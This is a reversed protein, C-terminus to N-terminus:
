PAPTSPSATPTAMTSHVQLDYPQNSPTSGATRGLYPNSPNLGSNAPVTVAVYYTQGGIVPVILPNDGTFLNTNAASGVVKMTSDLVEVFTQDGANSFTDLQLKGSDPATVVFMDVDDAVTIRTSSGTPPPDSGLEGQEDTYTYTLGTNPDQASFDPNTLDVAVAGQITGNPDPNILQIQVSYDGQTAGGAAGTGNITYSENGVSSVGLYYTGVALPNAATNLMPYKRPPEMPM